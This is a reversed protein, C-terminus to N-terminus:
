EVIIEDVFLWAKSGAFPHWDPCIGVNTAKVGIFRAKIDSFDESFDKVRNGIRKDPKENKISAITTYNQGDLSTEYEVKKPFFIWSGNSHFFSTSIKQISKVEGLDIVAELNKQEFGQWNGDTFTEGGKFGNVLANNGGASYRPSFSQNLKIKGGTALHRYFSNEAIALSPISKKFARAKLYTSKKFRLTDSYLSSKITPEEGDITYRIELPNLECSLVVKFEDRNVDFNGSIKVNETVIPWDDSRFSSAPLGEKNFLNPEDGNHFAYRVALPSKIKDNFVVIPNGDIRAQAPLFEKEKGAIEFHTLNDGKVHLGSGVHDFFIRIKNKEIKYSKFIPGSYVLDSNGYTKALAWLALRKGVDQKNTPHIDTPNGIDMTVAMGTNGLALTKRQADRLEAGVLPTGYAFPALQVFYFPFSGRAWDDRWNQIMTPFLKEYLKAEKANAEGQYWIAGRFGYPILPAIMANYLSAPSRQNRPLIGPKTDKIKQAFRKLYINLDPDNKLIEKRTWAEAPTGGWSTHILGIPVNLEQYLERGFFYAVASFSEASHPTCEAWKGYCDKKPEDAYERAVYFLRINNYNATKIEEEANNSRSVSWQMNSQGSCIWVEGILINKIIFDNIALTFPGGAEPTNLTVMWKGNAEVTSVVEKNDWSGKVHVLKGPTAWGWLPVNSQQQLVMNDSIFSPLEIQSQARSITIIMIFALTIQLMRLKPNMKVEM